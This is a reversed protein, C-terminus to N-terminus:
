AQSGEKVDEDFLTESGANFKGLLEINDTFHLARGVNRKVLAAISADFRLVIDELPINSTFIIPLKRTELRDRLFTDIFAIQYGSRYITVKNPDFADDIILVDCELIDRIAETVGEEFKEQTLTKVLDNMLTFRVSLGKRLLEIGIWKAVTTKQTGNATSWLYLSVERYREKFERVYQRIRPLNREEDPGFYDNITYRTDAKSLGSQHLGVEFMVESQYERLCQCKRVITDREEVSYVYGDRCEGCPIFKKM